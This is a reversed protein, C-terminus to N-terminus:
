PSPAFWGILDVAVDTSGASNFIAVKGNTGVKAIVLNPVVQGPTFNLNSTRPRAGGAPWLTLFGSMSPTIATVNLVVSDVGSNPVGARGTVALDLEAGAGIAGTASYLGDVTPSGSRTDLVRVPVLSTLESASAFWGMVDAILDTSNLANYLAVKGNGGVKAIVLNASNRGPALNLNSAFPRPSGAPWVSVYGPGSSNAATLNLVVADVGSAPVGGRGAVVLDLEVGQGLAGSGSFQNDVTRQGARTDLLRAPQLPTLGSTAPFWGAVDAILDTSGASNFMAVKGAAGVKALVLNPVTQGPVFNLNSALPRSSGAPWVTVFGRDTPNAVTVNLVVAAAGSAPVGGRGSVAFDLEGGAALAGSGSYQGDVTAFGARTDLVRAPSLSVFTPSASGAQATACNPTASAAAGRTLGATGVGSYTSKGMVWCTRYTIVGGAPYAVIPVSMTDTLYVEPLNSGYFPASGWAFKKGYIAAGALWGGDAAGGSYQASQFPWEWQQIGNAASYFGSGDIGRHSSYGSYVLGADGALKMEFLGIEYLVGTTSHKALMGQFPRMSGIPASWTWASAQTLYASPAVKSAFLFASDGWQVNNITANADSDAFELVGYPGRMDFALQGKTSASIDVQTDIRPFDTGKQFTWTITVPVAYRMHQAAATPTGHDASPDAMPALTGWKPYTLRFSHSAVTSAATITSASTTVPFALGLPSDDEGHLAAITGSSGDSFSRYLEHAVFYGFGGDGGSAMNATVTRWVGGELVRYTMQVAYGGNGPNGNGQQKLSVSRPQGQSDTWTYQDVALGLVTTSTRQVGDGTAGIAIPAATFAAVAVVCAAALQVRRTRLAVALWLFGQM